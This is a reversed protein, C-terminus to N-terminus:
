AQFVLHYAWFRLRRMHLFALYAYVLLQTPHNFIWQMFNNCMPHHALALAIGYGPAFFVSWLGMVLADKAKAQYLPKPTPNLKRGMDFVEM